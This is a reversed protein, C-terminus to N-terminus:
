SFSRGLLRRVWWFSWSMAKWQTKRSKQSDLGDRRERKVGDWRPLPRAKVVLDNLRQCLRLHWKVHTPFLEWLALM